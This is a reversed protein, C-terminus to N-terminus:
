NTPLFFCGIAPTTTFNSSRSHSNVCMINSEKLLSSGKFPRKLSLSAWIGSSIFFLSSSTFFALPFIDKYNTNYIEVNKAGKNKMTSGEFANPGLDEPSHFIGLLLPKVVPPDQEFHIPGM